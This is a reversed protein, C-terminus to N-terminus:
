AREVVILARLAAPRVWLFRTAQEVRALAPYLRRPLFCRPQFGFSLLYAFLSFPEVEVLRLEPVDRQLQDWFRGFALAPIAQNAEFPDKGAPYILGPQWDLDFDEEHFYSYVLRSFPTHWPEVM